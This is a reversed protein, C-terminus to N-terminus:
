VAIFGYSQHRVRTAGTRLELDICCLRAIYFAELVAIDFPKVGYLLTAMLRVLLVAGAIGFSIGVLRVAQALVSRLIAGRSAGVAMRIGFERTRQTVSYSM